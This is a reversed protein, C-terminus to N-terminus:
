SIVIHNFHGPVKLRCKECDSRYGISFSKKMGPQWTWSNITHKSRVHGKRGPSPSAADGECHHSEMDMANPHNMAHLPSTRAPVSSAARTPSEDDVAMSTAVQSQSFDGAESIPSPLRRNLPVAGWDGEGAMARPISQCDSFGTQHHGMNVVGNMAAGSAAWESQQSRVQAIFSPQIPTPMRNVNRDLLDLAGHSVRAHNPTPSGCDAMEMDVDHAQSDITSPPPSRPALHPQPIGESAGANLPTIGTSPPWQHSSTPSTRLPLAQLRKNRHESFGTATTNADDDDRLRKRGADLADMMCHEAAFM